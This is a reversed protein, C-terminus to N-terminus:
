RESEDGASALADDSSELLSPLSGAVFPGTVEIKSTDAQLADALLDEMLLESAASAEPLRRMAYATVLLPLLAALLLGAVFVTQAVLPERMSMVAVSNREAHLEERQRDVNLRETHIQAQLKEQAQFLERRAAADKDVLDHAAAALEQSQRAVAQSQEALHENQRAQQEVSRSALQALREDQSDCGALVM